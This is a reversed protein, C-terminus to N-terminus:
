PRFGSRGRGAPPQRRQASQTSSTPKQTITAASASLPPRTSSADAAEHRRSRHRDLEVFRDVSRLLHEAPVHRELSFEYFLAEQGSWREGMMPQVGTGRGSQILGAKGRCGGVKEVCDASGPREGLHPVASLNSVMASTRRPSCKPESTGSASMTAFGAAPGFM